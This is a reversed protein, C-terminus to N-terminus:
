WMQLLVLVTICEDQVEARTVIVPDMCGNAPVSDFTLMDLSLNVRYIIKTQSM